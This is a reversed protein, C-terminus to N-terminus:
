IEEFSFNPSLIQWQSMEIQILKLIRVRHRMRNRRVPVVKSRKKEKKTEPIQLKVPGGCSVTSYHPVVPSSVM